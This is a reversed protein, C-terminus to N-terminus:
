GWNKTPNTKSSRLNETYHKTSRQKDKKQQGNQQRYKKSKHIKIVGRELGKPIKLSKKLISFPLLPYNYKVGLDIKFPPVITGVYSL